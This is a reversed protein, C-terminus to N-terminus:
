TTLKAIRKDMNMRPLVCVLIASLYTERLNESESSMSMVPEGLRSLCPRFLTEPMSSLWSAPMYPPSNASLAIAAILQTDRMPKKAIAIAM